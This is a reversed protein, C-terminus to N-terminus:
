CGPEPSYYQERYAALAGRHKEIAALEAASFQGKKQAPTGDFFVWFRQKMAEFVEDELGSAQQQPSKDDAMDAGCAGMKAPDPEAGPTPMCKMLSGIAGMGTNGKALNELAAANAQKEAAIGKLFKAITAETIPHQKLDILYQPVEQASVLAPATLFLLGLGLTRALHRLTRPM